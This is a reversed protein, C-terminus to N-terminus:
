RGRLKPNFADQLGDGILSFSLVTFFIALGPFTVTWWGGLVSGRNQGILYGWSINNPDGLGLFALAAEFLIATGMVLTTAVILPPLANPLMVRFMIRADSAGIAQAAKVFELNRLRLFEARTLRALSPWLVIGISIAIVMTSPEFLTVIVLAFLLAPMVQFIETFRMLATDIRGGYFGAIAGISVGIVVIMLTAVLAVRLTTDGGNVVGAFVDRGLYDTGFSPVDETGPGQLPRAIIRSPDQDYLSPGIYTMFIVGVLIIVGAVAARNRMFLRLAERGLPAGAATEDGGGGGDGDSNGGDNNGIFLGTM